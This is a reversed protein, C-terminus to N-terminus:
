LQRLQLGFETHRGARPRADLECRLYGCSAAKKPRKALQEILHHCGQVVSATHGIAALDGEQSQCANEEQVEDLGLSPQVTFPPEQPLPQITREKIAESKNNFEVFGFGRSDGSYMDRIIKYSQIEGYEAFLQKLEEETVDAHINGVFINM